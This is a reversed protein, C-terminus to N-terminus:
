ASIAVPTQYDFFRNRKIVEAVGAPVMAEWTPDAKKIRKLIDRSYISM